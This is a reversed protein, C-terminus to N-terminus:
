IVKKKRKWIKSEKKEKLNDYISALLIIYIFSFSIIIAFWLPKDFSYVTMAPLIMYPDKPVTFACISIVIVGIIGLIIFVKKM